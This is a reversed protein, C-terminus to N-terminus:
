GKTSAASSVVVESVAKKNEGADTWAPVRGLRAAEEWAFNLEVKIGNIPERMFLQYLNSNHAKRESFEVGNKTLRDIFEELGDSNLCLHDIRGSGMVGAASYDVGKQDGPTKLYTDQHSSHRAKGIHIVDQEGIYLWYVPFGFEPHDGNRFGLNNCFWDRTAEPDDTLILIHELFRLGM